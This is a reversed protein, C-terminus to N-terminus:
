RKAVFMGSPKGDNDPPNAIQSFGLFRLLEIVARTTPEFQCSPKDVWINATNHKEIKPMRINMRWLSEDVERSPPRYLRTAVFLIRDTVAAIKQM